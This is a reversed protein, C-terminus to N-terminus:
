FKSQYIFKETKFHGDQEVQIIYLGSQTQIEELNFFKPTSDQGNFTSIVRGSLDIISGQWPSNSSPIIEIQDSYQKLKIFNSYNKGSGLGTTTRELPNVIELSCVPNNGGGLFGTNGGVDYINAYVDVARDQFKGSVWSNLAGETLANYGLTGSKSYTAHGNRCCVNGVVDPDSRDIVGTLGYASLIRADATFRGKGEVHVKGNSILTFAATKNKSLSVRICGDLLEIGPNTALGCTGEYNVYQDTFTQKIQDSLLNSYYFYSILFLPNNTAIKASKLTAFTYYGLGLINAALTGWDMSQNCRVGYEIKQGDHIRAALPDLDDLTYAFLANDNAYAVSERGGNCIGGDIQDARVRVGASYKYCVTVFPPERECPCDDPRLEDIGVCAFAYKLTARNGGQEDGYLDSESEASGELQSAYSSLTNKYRNGRTCRPSNIWVQKYKAPGRMGYGHWRKGAKSFNEEGGGYVNNWEFKNQGISKKGRSPSIESTVSIRLPRCICDTLVGPPPGPPPFSPGQQEENPNGPSYGKLNNPFPKGSYVYEQLFWSKEINHWPQENVFSFIDLNNSEQDPASFYYSVEDFIHEPLELVNGASYEYFSEFSDMIYSNEGDEAVIQFHKDRPLDDIILVNYEGNVWLEGYVNQDEDEVYVLYPFEEPTSFKIIASSSSEYNVVSKNVVYHYYATDDGLPWEEEPTTYDYDIWSSDTEIDEDLDTQAYSFHVTLLLLFALCAKLKKLCKADFLNSKFIM